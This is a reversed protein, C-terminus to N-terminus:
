QRGGVSCARHLLPVKRRRSRVEARWAHGAQCRWWVKRHSGRHVADPTLPDNRGWDWEQLLDIKDQHECYYKLSYEEKM